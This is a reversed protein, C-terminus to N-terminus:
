CLKDDVYNTMLMVTVLIVSVTLDFHGNEVFINRFSNDMRAIINGLVMNRLRNKFIISVLILIQAM